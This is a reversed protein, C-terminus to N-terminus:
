KKSAIYIAIFSIALSLIALINAWITSLRSHWIHSHLTKMTMAIKVDDYTFDNIINELEGNAFKSKNLLANKYYDSLMKSKLDEKIEEPKKEESNYKRLKTWDDFQKYHESNKIKWPNWSFIYRICNDSLIIRKNENSLKLNDIIELIEKYM